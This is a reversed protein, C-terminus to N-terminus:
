SMKIGFLVADKQEQQKPLVLTSANQLFFSFSIQALTGRTDTHLISTTSLLAKSGKKRAESLNSEDAEKQM